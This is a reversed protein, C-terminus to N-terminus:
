IKPLDKQLAQTLRLILEPGYVTAIIMGVNFPDLDSFSRTVWFRELPVKVPWHNYFALAMDAVYAFTAIASARRLQEATPNNMLLPRIEGAQIGMQLIFGGLGSIIGWPTFGLARTLVGDLLRKYPRYNAAIVVGMSLYSALMTVAAATQDPKAKAAFDRARHAQTSAKSQGNTQAKANNVPEAEVTVTKM